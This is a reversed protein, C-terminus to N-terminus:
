AIVINTVDPPCMFRVPLGSYGLGASVAVFRGDIDNLGPGIRRDAQNVLAGAVPVRIQGGHTHGCLSLFPAKESPIRLALAPNHALVIASAPDLGNMPKFWRSREMVDRLGCLIFRGWEGDLEVREDRLTRVGASALFSVVRGPDVYCDHNGLVAFVPAMGTLRGFFDRAQGLATLEYECLDGGFFIVDPAFAAIIRTAEDMNRRPLFFGAHLDTVFSIRLERGSKAGPPRRLALRRDLVRMDEGTAAHVGALAVLSGAAAMAGGALLRRRSGDHGATLPARGWLAAWALAANLLAFAGLVSTYYMFSFKSFNARVAPYLAVSALSLVAFVYPYAKAWRAPMRERWRWLAFFGGLLVAAAIPFVLLVIPNVGHFGLITM